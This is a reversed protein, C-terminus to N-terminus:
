RQTSQTEATTEPQTQDAEDPEDGLSKIYSILQLIEEESLQGQYTPMLPKYGKVIDATPNLISDRIYNADVLMTEGTELEVQKGYLGHLIPAQAATDPRHCTNCAKAQFLERGSTIVSPGKEAGTLWAEYDAPEMVTISGIM